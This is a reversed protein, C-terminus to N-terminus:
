GPAASPGALIVVRDAEVRAAPIQPDGEMLRRLAERKAEGAVLFLVLRAASLVQLTLTLRPHDPRQVRAVLHDTEDLAPDGPFLSATHGDEGLGLLALDISPTGPGFVERLTREYGAAHCTEGPMPYVRADVKSLLAEHAMGYNSDPHDWPVCREDGFVVDVLSWPYDRAESALREYFPRPTSGGALAVSRPRREVFLELAAVGLDEM